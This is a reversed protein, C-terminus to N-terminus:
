RWDIIQQSLGLLDINWHGCGVMLRNVVRWGVVPGNVVRWCAVPRNSGTAVNLHVTGMGLIGLVGCPVSGDRHVVGEESV